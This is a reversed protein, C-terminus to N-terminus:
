RMDTAAAVVLDAVDKFQWAVNAYRAQMASPLGDDVTM